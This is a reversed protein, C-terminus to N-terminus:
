SKLAIVADRDVAQEVWHAFGNYPPENLVQLGASVMAHVVQGRRLTYANFSLALAGGKRLVGACGAAAKTVLKELSAIRQGEQPAHQVGYPLDGVALHCSEPRLLKPLRDLDSYILKLSRSDGAKFREPTDAMTFTTCKVGKGGPLTLSSVERRHKFRHLKLFREFYTDAEGLAKADIDMGIANDGEDLACFLTTAKGCLPDLVTLPEQSRAFASADRACHLLMRTFDANTKGKYKLVQSLEDPLYRRGTREVPILAGDQIRAAFCCGSHSSLSRWMEPTLDEANFAVFPEGAIDCLEAGDYLGWAQLCCELETLALTLLSQRYRTNAHPKLLMAYRM